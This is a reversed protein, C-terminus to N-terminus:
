SPEAHLVAGGITASAWYPPPGDTPGDDAVDANRGADWSTWLVLGLDRLVLVDEEVVDEDHGLATLVDAARQAFLSVGEFLVDPPPGAQQPDYPDFVELEVVLGEAELELRVSPEGTLYWRRDNGDPSVFAPGLAHLARVVVDLPQGLAANGLGGRHLRWSGTPM